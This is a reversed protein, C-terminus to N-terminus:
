GPKSTEDSDAADLLEAMAGPSLKQPNITLAHRLPGGDEGTHEIRDTERWGMRTKAWFMAARICDAHSAKKALAAGSAAQFLFEGVKANAEMMGDDLDTQYYKTLTPISVGIRRAIDAQPIGYASLASALKRNEESPEHPKQPM